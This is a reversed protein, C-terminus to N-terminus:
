RIITPTVGHETMGHTIELRSKFKAILKNM